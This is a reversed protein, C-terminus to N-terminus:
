WDPKDLRCYSLRAQQEFTLPSVPRSVMSWVFERAMIPLPVWQYYATVFLSCTGYGVVFPTVLALVAWHKKYMM